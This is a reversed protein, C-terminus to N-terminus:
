RTDGTAVHLQWSLRKADYKAHIFERHADQLSQLTQLVELNSVLNLRYDEVELRYSEEAASLANELAARIVIASDAKAYADRIDLAVRRQKEEYRLKAERAQSAAAKVAGAAQGGQFLPVDVTLAADWKVEKAVGSRDVYYNGNATVTPWWQAQAITVAKQAVHWADEAALLDPRISLKMLYTTEPDLPPLSPADDNIAELHDLGTLFNLLQEGIREASRAREINAETRRLQAEASVVESARSRGLRQRDKLEELRQILAVRTTELASLDERLELLLYFANAVDVFLLHEARTKEEIRERREARSGALAAFEKFGAFLTQNVTFQRQPTYRLTFASSGSGDQRKDSSLFSVHPLATGLAQLFRGETEKILEAHIAITESRKLALAYCDQLTLPSASASPPPSIEAAQTTTFSVVAVTTIFWAHRHSRRANRSLNYGFVCNQLSM